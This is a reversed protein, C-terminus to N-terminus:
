FCYLPPINGPCLRRVSRSKPRKWQRVDPKLALRITQGTLIDVFTAAVKGYDEIRLTRKGISCGTAVRVGDAFCGDTELIVLLRQAIGARRCLEAITSKGRLGELVIHTKGEASYKKRTKRSINRVTSEASEKKAM